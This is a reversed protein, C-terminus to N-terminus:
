VSGGSCARRASRRRAAGRVQRAEELDREARHMSEGRIVSAARLPSPRRSARACGRRTRRSRATRGGRSCRSGPRRRPQGREVAHDVFSSRPRSPRRRRSRGRRRRRDQHRLRERVRREDAGVVVRARDLGRALAGRSAPTSSRTVSRPRAPRPRELPSRSRGRSSTRSGARCPRDRRAGRAVHALREGGVARPHDDLRRGAVADLVVEVRDAARVVPERRQEARGRRQRLLDPEREARLGALRADAVDDVAPPKM